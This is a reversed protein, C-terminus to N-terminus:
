GAPGQGQSPLEGPGGVPSGASKSLVASHDCGVGGLFKEQRGRVGGETLMRAHGPAAAPRPKTKTRRGGEQAAQRGSLELRWSQGWGLWSKMRAEWSPSRAKMNPSRVSLTDAPKKEGPLERVLMRGPPRAGPDVWHKAEQGPGSSLAACGDPM